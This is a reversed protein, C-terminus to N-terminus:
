AANRRHVSAVASCLAPLWHRPENVCSGHDGAVEHLTAGHIAGALSLQRAVPVIDDHLTVTVAAPVEIGGIWPRSDFRGIERGAEVIRVWDHRSVEGLAWQRISRDPRGTLLRLAAAARVRPPAVRSVAAVPTLGTFLARERATTNFTAATSCLVLGDVREPHRRWLLQAVAGGMSYGVAIVSGAGLVDLVDAADDACAALTFRRDVRLGRGHGRLDM